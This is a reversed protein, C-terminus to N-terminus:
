LSRTAESLAKSVNRRESLNQPCYVRELRTSSQSSPQWTKSTNSTALQYAGGKVRLNVSILQEATSSM